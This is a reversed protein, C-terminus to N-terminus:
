RNIISSTINYFEFNGVDMLKAMTESAMILDLYTWQSMYSNIAIHCDSQVIDTQPVIIRTYICFTIAIFHCVIIAAANIQKIIM